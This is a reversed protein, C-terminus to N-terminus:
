KMSKLLKKEVRLTPPLTLLFQVLEQLEKPLTAEKDWGAKRDTYGLFGHNKGTGVPDKEKSATWANVRRVLEELQERTLDDKRVVDSLIDRRTAAQAEGTPEITLVLRGTIPLLGGGEEYDNLKFTLTSPLTPGAPGSACGAAALLIALAAFATKM